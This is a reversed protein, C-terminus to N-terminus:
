KEHVRKGTRHEVTLELIRVKDKYKAVEREAEEASPYYKLALRRAIEEVRGPDTVTKVRGFLIVSRIYLAWDGEQRVGQDMVCFSARDDAALADIKHGEQACHFYIKDDTYVFDMPFAYPYGDEGHVALVGRPERTLIERCEAEDLAQKWRRMARFM